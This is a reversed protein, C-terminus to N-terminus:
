GAFGFTGPGITLLGIPLANQVLRGSLWTGCPAILQHWELLFFSPTIHGSAVLNLKRPGVLRGCRTARVVTAPLMPRGVAWVACRWLSSSLPTDGVRPGVPIYVAELAFSARKRIEKRGNEVGVDSKTPLSTCRASYGHDRCKQGISVAEVASSTGQASYGRGRCKTQDVRGVSKM